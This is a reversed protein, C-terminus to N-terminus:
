RYMAKLKGWSNGAVATVGLPEVHVFDIQQTTWPCYDFPPHGFFFGTPRFSSAASAKLVGDVYFYYVGSLYQWEYVHYNTEPAAALPVVTEGCAARFGGCCIDQWLWFGVGAQGLTLGNTAGFGNGGDKPDLYQFGVRILFDGTAPFPNNLSTVYPFLGCPASLTATGGAVTITGGGSVVWHAPDLSTGNFDDHFVQANANPIGLQSSLALLFMGACIYFLKRAM